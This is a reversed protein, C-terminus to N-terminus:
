EKSNPTMEAEDETTSDTETKESTETDEETADGTEEDPLDDKTGDSPTVGSYLESGKVILITLVVVLGIGIIYFIGFFKVGFEIKEAPNTITDPGYMAIPTFVITPLYLLISVGGGTGILLGEIYKRPKEELASITVYMTYIIVGIFVVFYTIIKTLYVTEALFHSKIVIGLNLAFLLAVATGLTAITTDSKEKLNFM